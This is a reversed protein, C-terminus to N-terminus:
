PIPTERTTADDIEEQNIDIGVVEEAGLSALYATRGGTGCGIDLVRKGKVDLNRIKGLIKPSSDYQWAIYDQHTRQNSSGGRISKEVLKKLISEGIASMRRESEKSCPLYIQVLGSSKISHCYVGITM